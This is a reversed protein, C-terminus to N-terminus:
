DSVNTIQVGGMWTTTTVHLAFADSPLDSLETVHQDVGGMAGHSELHVAWEPPVVVQIGGVIATLELTAGDPDLSADQLDIQVGGVAAWASASRLAAARSHFETGGVIAALKFEDSEEDGSTLRKAVLQGIASALAVVFLVRFVRSLTSVERRSM